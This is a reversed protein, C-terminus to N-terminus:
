KTGADESGAENWEGDQIALVNGNTGLKTFDFGASGGGAKSLTGATQQADRGTEADQDPINNCPVDNSSDDACKTIGTDNLGAAAALGPLLLAALLSARATRIRTM